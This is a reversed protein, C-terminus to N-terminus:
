FRVLASFLIVLNEVLFHGVEDVDDILAEEEVIDLILYTDAFFNLLLHDQLGLNVLVHVGHHALASDDDVDFFVDSHM